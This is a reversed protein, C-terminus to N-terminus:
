PNVVVQLKLLNLLLSNSTEMRKNDKLKAKRGLLDMGMRAPIMKSQILLIMYIYEFM